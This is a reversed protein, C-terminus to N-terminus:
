VDVRRLERLGNADRICLELKDLVGLRTSPEDLTARGNYWEIVADGLVALEILQIVSIDMLLDSGPLHRFDVYVPWVM